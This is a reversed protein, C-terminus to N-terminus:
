RRGSGNGRGEDSLTTDFFFIKHQEFLELHTAKCQHTTSKAAARLFRVGGRGAALLQWYSRKQPPVQHRGGRGHHARTQRPSACTKHMLGLQQSNVTCHGATDLLCHERRVARDTARSEGGWSRCCGWLRLLFHYLMSTRNLSLYEATEEELTLRNTM